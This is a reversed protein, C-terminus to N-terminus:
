GLRCSAGDILCDSEGCNSGCVDVVGDNGEVRCCEGQFLFHDGQADTKAHGDIGGVSAECM